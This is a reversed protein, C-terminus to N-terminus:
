SDPVTNTQSSREDTRRAEEGGGGFPLLKYDYSDIFGTEWDKSENCTVVLYVGDECEDLNVIQRVVEDAGIMSCDEELIQYGSSQRKLTTLSRRIHLGRKDRWCNTTLRVVERREPEAGGGAGSKARLTNEDCVLASCAVIEANNTEPTPTTM